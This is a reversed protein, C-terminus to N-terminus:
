EYTIEDLYMVSSIPVLRQPKQYTGGLAISSTDHEKLARPLQCNIGIGAIAVKGPVRIREGNTLVLTCAAIEPKSERHGYDYM